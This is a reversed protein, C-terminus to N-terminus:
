ATPEALLGRILAEREASELAIRKYYAVMQVPQCAFWLKVREMPTKAWEWFAILYLIILEMHIVM